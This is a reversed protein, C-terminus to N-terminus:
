GRQLVLRDRGTQGLVGDVAAILATEAIGVDFARARQGAARRMNALKDPDGVM